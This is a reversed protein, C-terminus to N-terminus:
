VDNQGIQVSNGFLVCIGTNNKELSTDEILLQKYIIKLIDGKDLEHTGTGIM